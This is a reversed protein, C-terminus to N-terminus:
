PASAAAVRKKAAEIRTARAEAAAKRSAERAVEKEAAVRDEEAERDAIEQACGRWLLVCRVGCLSVSLWPVLSLRAVVTSAISPSTPGCWLRTPLGVAVHM